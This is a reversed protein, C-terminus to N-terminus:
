TEEELKAKNDSRKKLKIKIDPSNEGWLNVGLIKLYVRALPWFAVSPGSELASM